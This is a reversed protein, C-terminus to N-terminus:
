YLILRRFGCISLSAAVLSESLIDFRSAGNKWLLGYEDSINRFREQDMNRTAIAAFARAGKKGTAM